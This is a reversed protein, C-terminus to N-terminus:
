AQNFAPFGWSSAPFWMPADKNASCFSPNGIPLFDKAFSILYPGSFFNSAGPLSATLVAKGADVENDL